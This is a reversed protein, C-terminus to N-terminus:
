CTHDSLAVRVACLREGDALSGGPGTVLVAARGVIFDARDLTRRLREHLRVTKGRMGVPRFGGSTRPTSYKRGDITGFHKGYFMKTRNHSFIPSNLGSGARSAGIDGTQTLSLGM